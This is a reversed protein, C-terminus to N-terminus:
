GELMEPLGSHNEQLALICRAGQKGNTKCDVQHHPIHVGIEMRRTEFAIRFTPRTECGICRRIQRREGRGALDKRYQLRRCVTKILSRHIFDLMAMVLMMELVNGGRPQQQRERM